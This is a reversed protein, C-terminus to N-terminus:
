ASQMQVRRKQNYAVMANAALTLALGGLAVALPVLGGSLVSTAVVAGTVIMNILFIKLKDLVDPNIRKSDDYLDKADVIMMLISAGTLLVQEFLQIKLTALYSVATVVGLFTGGFVQLSIKKTFGSRVTAVFAEIKKKSEACTGKALADTEIEEVITKLAGSPYTAEAIAMKQEAKQLLKTYLLDRAKVVMKPDDYKNDPVADMVFSILHESWTAEAEDLLKKANEIENVVSSVNQGIAMIERLDEDSISNLGDVDCESGDNLRKLFYVQKTPSELSAIKEKISYRTEELVQAFAGKDEYKELAEESIGKDGFLSKVMEDCDSQTLRVQDKLYELVERSDSSKAIAARLNIFARLSRGAGILAQGGMLAAMVISSGIAGHALVPAAQMASSTHAKSVMLGVSASGLVGGIFELGSRVGTLAGMVRHWVSNVRVGERYSRLGKRATEISTLMKISSTFGMVSMSPAVEKGQLMESTTYVSRATSLAGGMVYGYSRFLGTRGPKERPLVREAVERVVHYTNANLDIQSYDRPRVTTKTTIKPSIAKKMQAYFDRSQAENHKSALDSLVLPTAFRNIMETYM